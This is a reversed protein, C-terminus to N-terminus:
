WICVEIEKWNKEFQEEAKPETTGFNYVVPCM